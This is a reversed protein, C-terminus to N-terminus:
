WLVRRRGGRWAMHSGARAGRARESERETVLLAASGVCLWGCSDHRERCGARRPPAHSTYVCVAVTLLVCMPM